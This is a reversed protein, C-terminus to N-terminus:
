REVGLPLLALVSVVAVTVLAGDQGLCPVLVTGVVVAGLAAGALDAGYVWTGARRIGWATGNRALLAFAVGDLVGAALTLGAFVSLVVPTGWPGAALLRTAVATALACAALGELLFLWQALGPRWRRASRAGLALGAMFCSSLAGALVYVHGHLCQLAYILVTAMAMGFFGTGAAAGLLALRALARDGRAGPQRRSRLRWLWLALSLCGALALAIAVHRARTSLAWRLLRSPGRDLGPDRAEPDASVLDNWALLAARCAVPYGDRNVEAPTDEIAAKLAAAQYSDVLNAFWAALCSPEPV